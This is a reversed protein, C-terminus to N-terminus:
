NKLQYVTIHSIHGLIEQKVYTQKSEAVLRSCLDSVLRECSSDCVTKKIEDEATATPLNVPKKNGTVTTFCENILPFSQVLCVLVENVSAPISISFVVEFLTFFKKIVSQKLEEDRCVLNLLLIGTILFLM